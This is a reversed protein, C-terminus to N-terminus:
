LASQSFLGMRACGLSLFFYFLCDTYEHLVIFLYSFHARLVLFPFIFPFDVSQLILINLRYFSVVFYYYDTFYTLFLFCFLSIVCSLRADDSSLTCFAYSIIRRTRSAVDFFLITEEAFDNELTM